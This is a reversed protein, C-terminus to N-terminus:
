SESDADKAKAENKSDKSDPKIDGGTQYEHSTRINRRLYGGAAGRVGNVLVGLFEAKSDSLDNKIRNVMGRKEALARVVLLSADCRTALASADGAVIAPATDILVLDYHEKAEELLSEMPATGLREFVRLEKAGATVLHVKPDGTDRVAEDLSIHGVLVEALGPAVDTGFVRHQAPRRYNADIILVRLDVAAAAYALNSVVGTAGSRPVGSVVLLTRHGGRNLQKLLTTRFQRVAESLIGEPQDRFITEFHKPNSPDENALPVIGLVRTRPIMAVDSPGKIRQDLLERLVVLGGTLGTLGFLGLAVTILRQPSSLRDPDRPPQVVRVRGGVLSRLQELEKLEERYRDRTLNQREVQVDLEDLAIFVETLTELRETLANRRDITDSLQALLARQAQRAADLEAGFQRRLERERVEQQEAQAADIRAQLQRYERHAPMIGTRQMTGQETRLAQIQQTLGAVLPGEEVAARTLASYPIAADSQLQSEMYQVQDNTAAINQRIASEEAIVQNLERQADDGAATESDIGEDRLLRTRRLMLDDLQEDLDDIIRRVVDAQGAGTVRARDNLRAIFRDTLLRALGASDEPTRWSVSMEFYNTAPIAKARILDELDQVAGAVDLAGGDRYQRIWRPAETEIKIDQVVGELLGFAEFDQLRTAIYVEMEEQDSIRQSDTLGGLPPEAEFIATATFTPHLLRWVHFSGEGLLIGAIGAVVLLWLYKQVLKVPDISTAFSAGASSAPPRQSPPIPAPRAPATTM